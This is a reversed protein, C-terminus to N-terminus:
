IDETRVVAACGPAAATNIGRVNGADRTIVGAGPLGAAEMVYRALAIEPRILFQHREM